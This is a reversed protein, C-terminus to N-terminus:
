VRSYFDKRSYQYFQRKRVAVAAQMQKKRCEGRGAWSSIVGCGAVPRTQLLNGRVAMREGALPDARDVDDDHGGVVDEDEDEM